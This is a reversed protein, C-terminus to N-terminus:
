PCLVRKPATRTRVKSYGRYSQRELRQRERGAARMTSLFAGIEILARTALSGLFGPPVPACTNSSPLSVWRGLPPGISTPMAKGDPGIATRKRLKSYGRYRRNHAM